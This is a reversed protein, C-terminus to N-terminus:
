GRLDRTLLELSLEAERAKAELAELRLLIGVKGPKSKAKMDSSLVQIQKILDNMQRNALTLRPPTIDTM